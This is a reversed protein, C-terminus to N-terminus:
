LMLFTINKLVFALEGALFTHLHIIDPLGYKEIYDLFIKKGIKFMKSSTRKPTRPISIFPSVITDVGSDVYSEKSFNFM